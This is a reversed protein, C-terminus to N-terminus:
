RRDTHSELEHYVLHQLHAEMESPPNKTPLEQREPSAIEIPYKKEEAVYGELGSGEAGKASSARSQRRRRLFM